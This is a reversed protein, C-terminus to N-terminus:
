GVIKDARPGFVKWLSRVNLASQGDTSVAAGQEDITATM